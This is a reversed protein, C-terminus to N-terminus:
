NDMFPTKKRILSVFVAGLLAGITNLILDDVDFSGIRLLLQMLELFLSVGLGVATVFTLNKTKSTLLGVLVGLPIFLAINGALNDLLIRGNSETMIYGFITKFPVFNHSSYTQGNHSVEKFVKSLMRWSSINKLLIVKMLFLLYVVVLVRMMPKLLKKAEM